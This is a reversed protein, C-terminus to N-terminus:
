KSHEGFKKIQHIDEIQTSVIEDIERKDLDDLNSEMAPLGHKESYYVPSESLHDKVIQEAVTRENTHEMEIKIAPELIKYFYEVPISHKDAIDELTAGESAGGVLEKEDEKEDTEPVPNELHEVDEKIYDFFRMITSEKIKQSKIKKVDVTIVMEGLEVTTLTDLEDKTYETKSLLYEIVHKRNEDTVVLASEMREQKTEEIKEPIDEHKTRAFDKITDISVGKTKKRKDGTKRREGDAISKIKKALSDPLNDLYEKQKAKSKRNYSAVMGFLRQQSKSKAAENLNNEM